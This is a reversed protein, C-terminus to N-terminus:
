GPEVWIVPGDGALRLRTGDTLTVSAGGSIPGLEVIRDVLRLLLRTATVRDAALAPAITIEQGTFFRLGDSQLAGDPTAVAGVLGLAPFVGGATWAAVTEILQTCGMASAAPLWLAALVGDCASALAAGLRLLTRVVPLANHAGSLHPGPAVGIAELTELRDATVGFRHRIPPAQLPRGPALGLLDFTLGDVLLELWDSTGGSDGDAAGPDHSISAVAAHELIARIQGADPREGPRCLLMLCAQPGLPEDADGATM